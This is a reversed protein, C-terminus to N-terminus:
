SLRRAGRGGRAQRVGAVNPVRLHDMGVRDGPRLTPALVPEGAALLVAAATAGEVALMAHLGPLGLAGRM